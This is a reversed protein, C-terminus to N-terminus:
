TDEQREPSAGDCFGCEECTEAYEEIECDRVPPSAPCIYCPKGGMSSPPNYMCVDCPSLPENQPTLTPFHQIDFLVQELVESAVKDQRVINTDLLKTTQYLADADILRM